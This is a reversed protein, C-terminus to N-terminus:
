LKELEKALRELESLAEKMTHSERATLSDASVAAEYKGIIESLRYTLALIADNGVSPPSGLALARAFHVLEALARVETQPVVLSLPQDEHARGVSVLGLQQTIALTRIPEEPM